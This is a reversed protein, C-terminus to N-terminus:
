GCCASSMGPVIGTKAGCASGQVTRPKILGSQRGDTLARARAHSAPEILAATLASDAVRLVQRKPATGSGTHYDRDNVNDGSRSEGSRTSTLVFVYVLTPTPM